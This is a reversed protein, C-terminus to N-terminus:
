LQRCLPCCGSPQFRATRAAHCCYDLAAWWSIPWHMSAAAHWYDSVPGGTAPLSWRRHPGACLHFSTVIIKLILGRSKFFFLWKPVPPFTLTVDSYIGWLADWCFSPFFGAVQRLLLPLAQMRKSKRARFKNREQSTMVTDSIKLDICEQILVWVSEELKQGHKKYLSGSVYWCSEERRRSAKEERKKLVFTRERYM